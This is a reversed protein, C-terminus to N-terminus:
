YPTHTQRQQNSLTHKEESEKNAWEEWSLGDARDGYHCCRHEEQGAETRKKFVSDLQAWIFCTSVFGEEWDGM